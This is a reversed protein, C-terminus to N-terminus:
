PAGGGLRRWGRGAEKAYAAYRPETALLAQARRYAEAARELQGLGEAARALNYWTGGLEPDAPGEWGQLDAVALEYQQLAEAPRGTSDYAQGLNNRAQSLHPDLALAKEYLPIAAEVPGGAEHEVNALNHYAGALGPDLSLAHRYAAAAAALDGQDRRLNGLLVWGDAFDPEIALGAQLQELAPGTLGRADYALALNLRARHMHPSREVAEQWLRVDDGWVASRQLCLIAMTVALAAAAVRRRWHRGMWADWAWAAGLVLGPSALYMRREAVMINLPLLTVPLLVVLFWAMGQGTPHRRGRWALYALSAVLGAGAWSAAAGPTSVTFAHEVTLRVPAAFLWLYYAFSKAQTWANVWLGRPAKSASAALFRNCAIVALYALSLAAVVALFPWRRRRWTCALAVAPFTIALEKALLAAAYAGASAARRRALLLALAGLYLLTVLLDSRASIYNVPEAHLPHLLMLLGAVWGVTRRGTLRQALLLVLCACGVHLALNVLHLLRLDLGAAAYGLAYSTLLLPRYMYGAANSSFTAPDTFFAPLNRLSRIHPNYQISHRDDYHFPNDLASWYLGLGLLGLCLAARAATRQWTTPPPGSPRSGGPAAPVTRSMCAAM